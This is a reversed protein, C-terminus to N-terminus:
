DRSSTEFNIKSSTSQDAYLFNVGNQDGHYAEKDFVLPIISSDADAGMFTLRSRRINSLNENWFYSSGSKEFHEHDSPCKFAFEDNGLYPLLEVELVAADEDKTKRGMFLPPMVDNNETLYGELGIGINRLKSMCAVGQASKKVKNAVPYVVAALAGIVFIVVLLETLTFGRKM